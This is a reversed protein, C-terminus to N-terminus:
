RHVFDPMTVVDNPDPEVSDFCDCLYEYVIDSLVYPLSVTLSAIYNQFQLSTVSKCVIMYKYRKYCTDSLIENENKSFFRLVFHDNNDIKKPRIWASVSQVDHEVGYLDFDCIKLNIIEDLMTNNEVGKLKILFQEIITTKNCINPLYLHIKHKLKSSTEFRIKNCNFRKDIYGRGGSYECEYRILDCNIVNCQKQHCM